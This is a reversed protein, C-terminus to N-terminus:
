LGKVYIYPYGKSPINYKEKLETTAKIKQLDFLKIIQPLQRIYTKEPFRWGMSNFYEKVKQLTFFGFSDLSKEAAELLKRDLPKVKNSKIQPFVKDATEAGFANAITEYSFDKKRMGKEKIAKAISNSYNLTLQNYIPISYLNIHRYQNNDEQYKLIMKQYGKSVSDIDIKKIMELLALYNIDEGTTKKDTRGLISALYRTSGSFVFGNNENTYELNEIAVYHLLVLTRIYRRVCKYLDPHSYEIDQLTHLNDELLLKHERNEEYTIGLNNCIIRLAKHRSVNEKYSVLQVINGIKFECSNSRCCYLWIGGDAKFVNASPNNDNHCICKFSKPNNGEVNYFTKIYDFLNIERTLHYFLSRYSTFVEKNEAKPTNSKTEPGVAGYEDIVSLFELYDYKRNSLQIIKCYYKHRIDKVWYTEPLRMQNAVSCVKTDADFYNILFDQIVKWKEITLGSNLFWYVQLGNRTEVIASPLCKFSSLADLKENKYEEVKALPFYNGSKDKGCDLDIFVAKLDTIDASKTGGINPIFHLEARGSHKSIDKIDVRYKHNSFIIPEPNGLGNLFNSLSM